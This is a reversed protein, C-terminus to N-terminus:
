LRDAAIATEWYGVLDQRETPTVGRVLAAQVGKPQGWNCYYVM